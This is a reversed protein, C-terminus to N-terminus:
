LAVLQHTWGGKFFVRLDFQIVSDGWTPTFILFFLEFMKWAMRGSELDCKASASWWTCRSSTAVYGTTWMSCLPPGWSKIVGFPHWTMSTQPFRTNLHSGPHIWVGASITSRLCIGLLGEWSTYPTYNYRLFFCEVGLLFCLSQVIWLQHWIFAQIMWILANIIPIMSPQSVEVSMFEPHHVWRPIAHEISPFLLCYEGLRHHFFPSSDCPRKMPIRIRTPPKLGAM